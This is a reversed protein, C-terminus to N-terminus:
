LGGDEKELHVMIDELSAPATDAGLRPADEARLLASFGERERKCGLLLGEPAADRQAATLAATRYRAHLADADADAAVEGRRLYVIHDACKELDSTIHTSFLISIGEDQALQLFIELLEDRSVPDLGSTPEDLVLLRARHSLALALAYKVKMGESLEKVRKNEDLAFLALYRRYATEDWSPYFRRTVDTVTRLRKLPYFGFGGSAFGVAQKVGFEDASLPRGFFLAEGADPHVFDLLSKLTTTKGAGNRGIFGMIAGPEVAFSVDRLRFAPYTKCLGEVELISM